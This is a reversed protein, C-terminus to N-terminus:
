VTACVAPEGPAEPERLTDGPVPPATVASRAAQHAPRSREFFEVEAGVCGVRLGTRLWMVVQQVVFLLLIWSWTGSPAAASYGLYAALLIGFLLAFLIAIGFTGPLHRLVFGLSVVWTRFARRTDGAAIRIRAYDLTLFFFLLVAGIAVFRIAFAAVWGPEWASEDLPKLIPALVTSLLFTVIVASVATYISLRLFRWYFHGAGRFFRHMFPRPGNSRLIELIGGFVLAGLIGSVAAMAAVPATLLAFIPTRNYHGIDGYVAFNFGNLLADAVPAFSFSDRWLTWAPISALLGMGLNILWLLTTLAPRKSSAGVGRALCRAIM